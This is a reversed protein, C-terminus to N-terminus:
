SFSGSPAFIDPGFITLLHDFDEMDPGIMGISLPEVGVAECFVTLTWRVAAEALAQDGGGLDLILSAQLEVMEGALSPRIWDKVDAMEDNGAPISRWSDGASITEGINRESSRWRWDVRISGGDESASDVFQGYTTGGTRGAWTEGDVGAGASHRCGCIRRVKNNM